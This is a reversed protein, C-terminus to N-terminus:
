STYQLCVNGGLSGVPTLMNIPIVLEFRVAKRYMSTNIPPYMNVHRKNDAFLM